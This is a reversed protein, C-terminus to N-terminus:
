HNISNHHNPTHTSSMHSQTDTSIDWLHHVIIIQSECVPLRTSVRSRSIKLQSEMKKRKGRDNHGQGRSNNDWRRGRNSNGQGDSNRDRNDRDRNNSDNGDWQRRRGRYSNDQGCGKNYQFDGNHKVAALVEIKSIM